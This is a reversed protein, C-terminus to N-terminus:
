PRPPSGMPELAITDGRVDATVGLTLGLVAAVRSVPESTFDATVRRAATASDGLVLTV